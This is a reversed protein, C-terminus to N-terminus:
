ARPSTSPAPWSCSRFRSRVIRRLVAHEARWALVLAVVAAIVCLVAVVVTVGTLGVLLSALVLSPLTVMDGSATVLPAAM